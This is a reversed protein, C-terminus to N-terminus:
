MHVSLCVAGFIYLDESSIADYDDNDDEGDTTLHRHSSSLQCFQPDHFGAGVHCGRGDDMMMTMTMVIIIMM